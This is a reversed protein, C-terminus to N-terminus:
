HSRMGLVDHCLACTEIMQGYVEAREKPTHANRAGHALENLKKDLTTAQEPVKDTGFNIPAGLLAAAGAIWSADSPGVIGDWMRDAAWAHRVMEANPDPSTPPPASVNFKPGGDTATHCTGCAAGMRAVSRSVDTIENQALIIRGEARMMELSEAAPQPFEDGKHSALWRAPARTADINGDIVADRIEGVQAYHAYM